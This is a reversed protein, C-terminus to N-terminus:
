INPCTKFTSFFNKFKWKNFMKTEMARSIIMQNTPMSCCVKLAVTSLYREKINVKNPNIPNAPSRLEATSLAEIQSRTTLEVGKKM